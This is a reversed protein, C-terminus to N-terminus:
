SLRTNQLDARANGRANARRDLMEEAAQANRQAREVEAKAEAVAREAALYNHTARAMNKEAREIRKTKTM